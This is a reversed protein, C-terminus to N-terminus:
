IRLLYQRLLENINKNIGLDWSFYPHAFYVEVDLAKAIKEHHVFKQDNDATITHVYKKYPM